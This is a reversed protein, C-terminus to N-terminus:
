GPVVYGPRNKAAERKKNTITAMGSPKNQQNALELVQVGSQETLLNATPKNETLVKILLDFGDEGGRSLSLTLADEKIYKAEIVDKQAPALIGANILTNLKDGRREAVVRVLVPDVTNQSLNVASIKLGNITSIILEDPADEAIDLLEALVKRDMKSDGKSLSLKWFKDLGPIVPDTCLAVHTIPQLYKQGKGDIIEGQVCISVDTTLALNEDNLELLGVLTDDERWLKHVWGRNAEPEHARDHSLPIPVHNGNATWRNFTVVWHDITDRTVEFAQGTKAKFYRGVKVLEKRYHTLGKSLTIGDSVSVAPFTELQLVIIDLKPKSKVKAKTKRKTKQQPM